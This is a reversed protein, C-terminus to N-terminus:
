YGHHGWYSNGLRIDKLCKQIVGDYLEWICYNILICVGCFTRRYNLKM